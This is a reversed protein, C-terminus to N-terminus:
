AWPPSAAAFEWGRGCCNGWCQPEDKAAALVKVGAGGKAEGFHPSWHRGGEAEATETTANFCTRREGM